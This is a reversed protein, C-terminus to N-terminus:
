FTEDGNTLSKRNSTEIEDRSSGIKKSSVKLLIGDSTLIEEVWTTEDIHLQTAISGDIVAVMAHPNDGVRIVKKLIPNKSNINSSSPNNMDYKM